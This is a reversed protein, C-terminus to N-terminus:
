LLYWTGRIEVDKTFKVPLGPLEIIKMESDLRWTFSIDKLLCESFKTLVSEDLVKFEQASQIKGQKDKMSIPDFPMQGLLKEKWFVKV